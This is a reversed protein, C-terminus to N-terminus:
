ILSYYQNKCDDCKEIILSRIKNCESCRALSRLDKSLKGGNSKLLDSLENNFELVSSSNSKTLEKPLVTYDLQTAGNFDIKNAGYNDIFKITLSKLGKYFKEEKKVDTNRTSEYSAYKWISLPSKEQPNDYSRQVGLWGLKSFFANGWFFVLFTLDCMFFFYSVSSKPLQLLLLAILFLPLGILFYTKIHKRNLNKRSEENTKWIFKNLGEDYYQMILHDDEPHCVVEKNRATLIEEIKAEFVEAESEDFLETPTSIM